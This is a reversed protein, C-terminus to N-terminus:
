SRDRGTPGESKRGNQSAKDKLSSAVDRTEQGLPEVEVYANAM